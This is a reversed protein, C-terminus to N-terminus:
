MAVDILQPLTRYSSKGCRRCAAVDAIMAAEVDRPMEIQRESNTRGHGVFEDGRARFAGLVRPCADYVATNALIALPFQAEDFARKIRWVGVRNGYDRYAYGRHFPAAPASTFDTGPNRGFEFAEVNLAFYVALRAGNPWEYTPRSTEGM